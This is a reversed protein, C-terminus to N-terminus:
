DLEWYFTDTTSQTENDKEYTDNPIVIMLPCYKYFRIMVQLFLSFIYKRSNNNLSAICIQNQHESDIVCYFPFLFFFSSSVYYLKFMQKTQSQRDNTQIHIHHHTYLYNIEVQQHKWKKGHQM